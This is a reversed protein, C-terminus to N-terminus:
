KGNQVVPALHISVLLVISLSAKLKWRRGMCTKDGKSVLMIIWVEVVWVSGVLVKYWKHYSWNQRDYGIKFTLIAPKCTVDRCGHGHDLVFANWDKPFYVRNSDHLEKLFFEITKEGLSGWCPRRTGHNCVLFQLWIKHGAYLCKPLSGQAPPLSWVM